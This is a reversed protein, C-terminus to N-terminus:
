LLSVPDVDIELYVQSDKGKDYLPIAKQAATHLASMTKGRVLIQYRHNGAILGIPCEAPGLMDAGPPMFPQFIAALRKIAKDARLADKSRVTFRILRTWPPFCLTKRQNIEADFFGDIDLACARTIVPDSPRLTQVIVKGDPFYRGSRGAVQVILSFTREASRFDPIHLGTDALIVGVLRVGPFNLGKAVMQTGLLIDFKGNKFNELTEKLNKGKGTTDADARIVRLDPFTRRVEEEISETGFGSYGAEVSGCQPCVRPPVESYGCYHCLARNRAKHYTLSVSCHKCTLEFGCDPCHYFYAFGRRNLFLITQRNMAATKRIEEKLEKTLCGDPHGLAVINIEPPKGGSLRKTLDLRKIGAAPSGATRTAAMLQWAEVSPTASGM